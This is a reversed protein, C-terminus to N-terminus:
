KCGKRRKTITLLIETHEMTNQMEDEGYNRENPSQYWTLVDLMGHACGTRGLRLTRCPREFQQLSQGGRHVRDSINLFVRYVSLYKSDFEQAILSSTLLATESGAVRDETALDIDGADM